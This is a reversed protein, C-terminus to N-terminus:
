ILEAEFIDGEFHAILEKEENNVLYKSRATGYDLATVAYDIFEETIAITVYENDTMSIPFVEFLTDGDKFKIHGVSNENIIKSAGNEKTVMELTDGQAASFGSTVVFANFVGNEFAGRCLLNFENIEITVLSRGNGRKDYSSATIQRGESYAHVVIPVNSSNKTLILPAVYLFVEHKERSGGRTLNLQFSEYILNNKPIRKENFNITNFPNTDEEIKVKDAGIVTAKGSPTDIEEAKEIDADYDSLHTVEEKLEEASISTPIEEVTPAPKAPVKVPTEDITPAPAEEVVEAADEVAVPEPTKVAEENNIMESMESYDIKNDDVPEVTAKSPTAENKEEPKNSAFNQDDNLFDDFFATSDNAFTILKQYSIPIDFNGASMNNNIEALLTTKIKEVSQKCQRISEFVVDNMFINIREKYM